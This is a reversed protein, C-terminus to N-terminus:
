FLTLVSTMASKMEIGTAKVDSQNLYLVEIENM